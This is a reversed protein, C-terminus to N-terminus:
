FKYGLSVMYVWPDIEVDATVRNGGAFKFTADTDIDVYWVAANLVLQEGLPIDIGAQGALGISNDVSLRGKAGGPSSLAGELTSSVDEEFFITYNVGIGVYPQVGEQM